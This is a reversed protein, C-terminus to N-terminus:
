NFPSSPARTDQGMCYNYCYMPATSHAQSETHPEHPSEANRMMRNLPGGPLLISDIDEISGISLNGCDQDMLQSTEPSVLSLLECIDVYSKRSRQIPRSMIVTDVTKMTVPATPEDVRWSNLQIVSNSYHAPELPVPISGIPDFTEHMPEGRNHDSFGRIENFLPHQMEGIPPICSSMEPTLFHNRKRLAAPTKVRKVFRLLSPDDRVFAKHSDPPFHPQTFKSHKAV